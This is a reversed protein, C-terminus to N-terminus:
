KEEVSAMASARTPQCASRLAAVLMSYFAMMAALILREATMARCDMMFLWVIWDTLNYENRRRV